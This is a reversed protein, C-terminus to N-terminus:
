SLPPVNRNLCFLNTPDYQQKVTALRRYNDGYAARVRERGEDGLFNVYVGESAFPQLDHALSNMWSRSKAEDEPDAWSPLITFLFRSDRSPFATADSAVESMAGGIQLIHVQSFPTPMEPM